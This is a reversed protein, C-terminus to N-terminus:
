SPDDNLPTLVSSLPSNMIQFEDMKRRLVVLRRRLRNSVTPLRDEVTQSRQDLATRSALRDRSLSIPTSLQFLRRGSVPRSLSSQRM